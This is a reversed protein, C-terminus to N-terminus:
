TCIHKYNNHRRLSQGGKENYFTKEKKRTVIKTMFNIPDSILMAVEARKQNNNAHYLNKWEKIKLRHRQIYLTDRIPLVFNSWKFFFKM